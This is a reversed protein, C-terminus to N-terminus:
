PRYLHQYKGKRVFLIIYDRYKWILGLAISIIGGIIFRWGIILFGEAEEKLGIINSVYLCIIGFTIIIIGAIFLPRSLNMVDPNKSM